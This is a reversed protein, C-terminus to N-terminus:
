LFSAEFLRSIDAMPLVIYVTCHITIYLRNLIIYASHTLTLVHPLSPLTQKCADNIFKAIRSKNGIEQHRRSIWSKNGSTQDTMNSIEWKRGAWCSVCCPSRRWFNDESAIFSFDFNLSFVAKTLAKNKKLRTRNEKMRWNRSTRLDFCLFLADVFKLVGQFSAVRFDLLQM